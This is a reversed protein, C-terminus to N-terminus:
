CLHVNGPLMPCLHGLEQCVTCHLAQRHRLHTECVPVAVEVHEHVCGFDVLAVCDAGCAGAGDPEDLSTSSWEVM